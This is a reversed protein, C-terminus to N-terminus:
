EKERGKLTPLGLIFPWLLPRGNGLHCIGSDVALQFPETKLCILTEKSSITIILDMIIRGGGEETM